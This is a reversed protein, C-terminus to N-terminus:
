RRFLRDILGRPKIAAPEAYSTVVSDRYSRWSNFSENAADRQFFKGSQIDIARLGLQDVIAAVAPVAGKGRVHLMIGDCEMDKGINIEISWGDGDIIGWSPDSFDAFPFIDVIKAILASRSGLSQPRFDEPIDSISQVEPLDSIHIDWSM